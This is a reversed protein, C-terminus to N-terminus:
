MSKQGFLSQKHTCMSNLFKIQVSNSVKIMSLFAIQTQRTSGIAKNHFGWRSYCPNLKNDSETDIVIVPLLPNSIKLMDSEAQFFEPFPESEIKAELFKLLGTCM